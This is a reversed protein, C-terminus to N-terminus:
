SRDDRSTQDFNLVQGITQQNSGPAPAPPPALPRTSSAGRPEPGASAPPTPDQPQATPTPAATHTPRSDGVHLSSEIWRSFEALVSSLRTRETELQRALTDVDESLRQKLGNLRNVEDEARSRAETVIERAREQAATTLERAKAEAEQQAQEIFQQAMVIMATVQEAGAGSSVIRPPPTTPVPATPAQTPPAAAVTGSQLQNIREGAQRLQQRMQHLQDKLQRSEVSVRELFEDVEDVNYGKLGVKFAVTDIADLASLANESSDM